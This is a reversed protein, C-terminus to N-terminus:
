IKSKFDVWLSSPQPRYDKKCTAPNTKSIIKNSIKEKGNIFATTIQM